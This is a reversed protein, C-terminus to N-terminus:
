GCSVKTPLTRKSSWICHIPEQDKDRTDSSACPLWMFPLRKSPSKFTTTLFDEKKDLNQCNFKVCSYKWHGCLDSTMWIQHPLEFACLFSEAKWSATTKNHKEPYWFIWKLHQGLDAGHLWVTLHTYILTICIFSYAHFVKCLPFTHLRSVCEVQLQELWKRYSSPILQRNTINFWLVRFNIM